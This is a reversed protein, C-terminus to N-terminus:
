LVSHLVSGSTRTPEIGSFVTEVECFEICTEEHFRMSHDVNM